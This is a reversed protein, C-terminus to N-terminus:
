KLNNKILKQTYEHDWNNGFFDFNNGVYRNINEKLKKTTIIESFLGKTMPTVSADNEKACIILGKLIRNQLEIYEETKFSYFSKSLKGKVNEKPIRWEVTNKRMKIKIGNWWGVCGPVGCSCTFIFTEKLGNDLCFSLPDFTEDDFSINNITVTCEGLNDIQFDITDYIM